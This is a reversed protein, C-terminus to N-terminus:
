IVFDFLLIFKPIRNKPEIDSLWKLMLDLRNLSKASVSFCAVTKDKLSQIDM